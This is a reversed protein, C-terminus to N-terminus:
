LRAHKSLWRRTGMWGDANEFLVFAKAESDTLHYQIEDDEVVSWRCLWQSKIDFYIIPFYSPNFCSL